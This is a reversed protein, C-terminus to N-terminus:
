TNWDQALNAPECGCFCSRTSLLTLEANNETGKAGGGVKDVM